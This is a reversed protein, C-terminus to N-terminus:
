PLSRLYSAGAGHSAYPAGFVGSAASLAVSFGFQAGATCRPDPLRTRERWKGASLTFAFATGCNIKDQTYTPMGILMTSGVVSVSRGFEQGPDARPATLKVPKSWGSKTRTFVYAAGPGPPWAIPASTTGDPAGVVATTASLSVATGFNDSSSGPNALVATQPWDHGKQTYVYAYKTAGMLVSSGSIAVSFAYNDHVGHLPNLKTAQLTWNPGLREYIYGGGSDSKRCSAGVVLLKSSIAISDGFMDADSPGPDTIVAQRHWKAGSGTYVYILDPSGNINNGGIAVYNGAKTSSIAVSWAYLDDSLDRPDLLTAERTWRSGSRAYIYASGTSQGSGPVAVVALKGSIAVSYGQRNGASGSANTSRWDLSATGPLSARRSAAAQTTRGPPTRWAVGTLLGAALGGIILGIGGARAVMRVRKPASEGRM